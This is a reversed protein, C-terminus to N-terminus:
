IGCAPPSSGGACVLALTLAVQVGLLIKQGRTAAGAIARSGTLAFRRSQWIPAGALISTVTLVMGALFTRPDPQPNPDVTFLDGAQVIVLRLIWRSLLVGAVTGM